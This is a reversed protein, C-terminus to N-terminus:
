VNNRLSLEEEINEMLEVSLVEMAKKILPATIRNILDVNLDYELIFHVRAKGNVDEILYSGKNPLGSVSQWAFTVPRINESIEAEWRIEIGFIDATWQFNGKDTKKVEKIFVSYSPFDEPNEIISFVADPTADFDLIKEIIPM